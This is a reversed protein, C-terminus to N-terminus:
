FPHTELEGTKVEFLKKNGYDALIEEGENIDCTTIYGFYYTGDHIITGM